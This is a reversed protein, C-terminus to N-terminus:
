ADLFAGALEASLRCRGVSEGECNRRLVVVSGVALVERQFDVGNGWFDRRAAELFACNVYRVADLYLM